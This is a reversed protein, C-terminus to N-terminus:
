EAEEEEAEVVKSIATRIKSIPTLTKVSPLHLEGIHVSPAHYASTSNSGNVQGTQAELYAVFQGVALYVRWVKQKDAANEPLNPALSKVYSDATIQTLSDLLSQFSQISVDGIDEYVETQIIREMDERLRRAPPFLRILARLTEGDDSQAM